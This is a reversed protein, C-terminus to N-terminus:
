HGKRRGDPINWLAENFETDASQLHGDPPWKGPILVPDANTSETPKSSKFNDPVDYPNGGPYKM